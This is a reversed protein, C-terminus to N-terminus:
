NLLDTSTLVKGFRNSNQELYRYVADFDERREASITSLAPKVFYIAIQDEFLSKINPLVSSCFSVISHPLTESAMLILEFPRDGCVVLWSAPLGRIDETRHAYYVFELQKSLAWRRVQDIVQIYDSRDMIALECFPQGIFQVERNTDYANRLCRRKVFTLRNSVMKLDKSPLGRYITFFTLRNKKLPASPLIFWAFSERLNSKNRSERNLSHFYSVTALGDDLVVVPNDRLRSLVYRIVKDHINGIFLLDKRTVKRLARDVFVRRRWLEVLFNFKSLARQFPKKVPLYGVSSWEGEDIIQNLQELIPPHNTIILLHAKSTKHGWQQKAELAFLYQLPTLVLFYASADHEDTM